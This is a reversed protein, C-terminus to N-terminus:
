QLYEGENQYGPLEVEVRAGQNTHRFQLGGDFYEKFRKLWASFQEEKEAQVDCLNLQLFVTTEGTSLTMVEVAGPPNNARPYELLGRLLVGLAAAESFSTVIVARSAHDVQLPPYCHPDSYEQLLRELLKRLDARYGAPTIEGVDYVLRIANLATSVVTGLSERGEQRWSANLEARVFSSILQLLNGVRHDLERHLQLARKAAIRATAYADAIEQRDLLQVLLVRRMSPDAYSSRLEFERAGVRLRTSDSAHEELGDLVLISTSGLFDELEEREDLSLSQRFADNSDLITRNKADFLISPLPLSELAVQAPGGPSQRISDGAASNVGKCM